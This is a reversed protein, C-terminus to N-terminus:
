GEDEGDGTMIMRGLAAFAMGIMMFYGPGAYAGTINIGHMPTAMDFIALIFCVVALLRYIPVLVDDWATDEDPVAELYDPEPPPEPTGIM